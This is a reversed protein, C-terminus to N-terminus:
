RAPSQAAGAGGGALRVRDTVRHFEYPRRWSSFYLEDELRGYRTGFLADFILRFSNVPTITPYLEARAEVPLYYANLIPMRERMDTAEVNNYDMWASPGHDGQLLIVPPRSSGALISDVVAMLYLNLGSLQRQYKDIYEVREHPPMMDRNRRFHIPRDSGVPEGNEDFVFPAHPCKIHAFVFM